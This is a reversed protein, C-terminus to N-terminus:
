LQIIGRTLGMTVAHTRDRAGLKGLISKLHGKATEESISLHQAIRKNASGVAVLRLVQIERDSLRDDGMHHALQTAVDPSVRKHGSQVARITEVLDKRIMGKLLYAQAGAKLAREALVDGAYTTLVIIRASLFDRRIAIIADIGSTEPMQIDLLLVDPRLSHFQEIAEKVTSAEGALLMDKENAILASLGARFVPHDDAALIRIIRPATKVPASQLPSSTDDHFRDAVSHMKEGEEKAV